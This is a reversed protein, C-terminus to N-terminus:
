TASVLALSEHPEEKPEQKVTVTPESKAQPPPPQPPKSAPATSPKSQQQPQSPPAPRQAQSSTPQSSPQPPRAQSPAQTTQQPPRQQTQQPPRQQAQQPPRSQTQQPPRAQAQQRAEQQEQAAAASKLIAAAAADAMSSISTESTAAAATTTTSTNANSQNAAAGNIGNSSSGKGTGNVVSGTEANSKSSSSNGTATSNTTSSPRQQQHQQQYSQADAVLQMAMDQVEKSLNEYTIGGPGFPNSATAASSSSSNNNDSPRSSSSSTYLSSFDHEQNQSGGGNSAYLSRAAADAAMSAPDTAGNGYTQPQRGSRNVETRGCQHRKLADRRVFGRGCDECRFKRSPTGLGLSALGGQPPLGGLNRGLAGLEAPTVAEINPEPEHEHTSAVHRQLDHKRSFSRRGDAKCSPYPCPFPKSRNPDPDHTAMHTHLNYARAFARECMTCQFRKLPPTGSRQSRDHYDREYGDNNTNSSSSSVGRAGGTNQYLSSALSSVPAAQTSTSTSSPTSSSNSYLSVSQSSTLRKMAEALAKHSEENGPLPNGHEDLGMAAQAVAALDFGHFPFKSPASATSTSAPAAPKNATASATGSGSGSASSPTVKPAAPTSNILSSATLWPAPAASSSASTSASSSTSTAPRPLAQSSTPARAEIQAPRAALSTPASTSPKAASNLTSSAQFANATQGSESRQQQGFGSQAGVRPLKLPEQASSTSPAASTAPVNSFEELMSAGVDEEEGNAEEHSRKTGHPLQESETHATEGEGGEENGNTAAAVDTAQEAGGDAPEAPGFLSDLGAGAIVAAAIADASFMDHPLSTPESATYDTSTMEETTSPDVVGVATDSTMAAEELASEGHEDHQTTEEEVGTEVANSTTDVGNTDTTEAEETVVQSEESADNNATPGTAAPESISPASSTSSTVPAEAEAEGSASM